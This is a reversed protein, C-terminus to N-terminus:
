VLSRLVDVLRDTVDIQRDIYVSMDPDNPGQVLLHASLTHSYKASRSWAVFYLYSGDEDLNYNLRGTITRGDESYFGEPNTPLLQIVPSRLVCCVVRDCGALFTLDVQRLVGAALKVPYILPAAATHSPLVTFEYSYHM